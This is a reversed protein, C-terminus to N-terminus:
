EKRTKNRMQQEDWLTEDYKMLKMNGEIRDLQKKMSLQHESMQVMSKAIEILADLSPEPSEVDPEATLRKGEETLLWKEYSLNANYAPLGQNYHMLFAIAIAKQKESPTM